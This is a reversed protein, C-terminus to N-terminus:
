ILLKFDFWEGYMYALDERAEGLSHYKYSLAGNSAVFWWYGNKKCLKIYVIEREKINRARFQCAKIYEM